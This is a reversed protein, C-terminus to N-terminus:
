EATTFQRARDLFTNIKESLNLKGDGTAMRLALDTNRVLEAPDTVIVTSTGNLLFSRAAGILALKFPPQYDMVLRISIRNSVFCSDNSIEVTLQEDKLSTQSVVAAALNEFIRIDINKALVYRYPKVQRYDVFNINQQLSGNFVRVFSPDRLMQAGLVAIQDATAELLSTQFWISGYTLVTLILLIVLPFYVAAEVVLSGHERVLIRIMIAVVNLFRVKNLIGQTQELGPSSSM